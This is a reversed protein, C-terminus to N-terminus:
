SMIVTKKVGLMRLTWIWPQCECLRYGLVTVSVWGLRLRSIEIEASGNAPYDKTQGFDLWRNYPNHQYNQVPFYDPTQTGKTKAQTRDKCDEGKSLWFCLGFINKKFIGLILVYLMIYYYYYKSSKLSLDLKSLFKENGM